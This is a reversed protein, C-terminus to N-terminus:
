DHVGLVLAPLGFGCAVVFLFFAGLILALLAFFRESEKVARRHAALAILAALLTVVAGGVLAAFIPAKEDHASSPYVLGYALALTGLVGFTGLALGSVSRTRSNM